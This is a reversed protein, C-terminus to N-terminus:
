LDAEMKELAEILAPLDDAPIGVRSPAMPETAFDGWISIGDGERARKLILPIRGVSVLAMNRSNALYFMEPRNPDWRVTLGYGHSQAYVKISM